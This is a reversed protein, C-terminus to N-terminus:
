RHLAPRKLAALAVAVILVLLGATLLPKSTRAARYKRRLLWKAGKWTVMGLLKYAM